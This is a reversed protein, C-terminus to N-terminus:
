CARRDSQHQVRHLHVSQQAVTWGGAVVPHHLGTSGNTPLGTVNYSTVNGINGSQFYQNGGPTSGADIWYATAGSGATWTFIQSSGTLTSGPTPSTIVGKGLQRQQLRHLHVSQEGLQGNILPGSRSTSPAAM